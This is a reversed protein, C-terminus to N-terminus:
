RALSSPLYPKFTPHCGAAELFKINREALICSFIEQHLIFSELSLFLVKRHKDAALHHNVQRFQKKPIDYYYWFNEIEDVRSGGPKSPKKLKCYRGKKV